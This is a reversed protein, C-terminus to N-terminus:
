NKNNDIDDSKDCNSSNNELNNISNDANINNDTNIINQQEDFFPSRRQRMEDGEVGGENTTATSPNATTTSTPPNITPPNTAHNTIFPIDTASLIIANNLAVDNDEVGRRSEELAWELQQDKTEASEEKNNHLLSPKVAQVAPKRRLVEDAACELLEGRVVFISYGEVQLQTLFLLLYTNSILEPFTLLSNLNFWQHGIKRISFWHQRFNCIFASQSAPDQRAQSSFPNASNFPVLSLSWVGLAKQLVQISFFGSDDYNSSPERLFDQYEMTDSGAEAMHLRESEDLGRALEALDFVTFYSEQLLANLCHQACLSGSQKEHFILEM